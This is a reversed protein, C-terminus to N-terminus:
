LRAAALCLLLTIEFAIREGAILLLRVPL